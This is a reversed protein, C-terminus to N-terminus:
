KLSLSNSFECQLLYQEFYDTCPICLDTKHFCTNKHANTKYFHDENQEDVSVETSHHEKHQEKTTNSKVQTQKQKKNKLNLRSLVPSRYTQQWSWSVFLKSM